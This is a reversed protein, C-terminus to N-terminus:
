LPCSGEPPGKPEIRVFEFGAADDDDDNSPVDGFVVAIAAADSWWSNKPLESSSLPPDIPSPKGLLSLCAEAGAAAAAAAVGISCVLAMGLGAAAADVVRVDVAADNM